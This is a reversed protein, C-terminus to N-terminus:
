DAPVGLVWGELSARRREEESLGHVQCLERLEGARDLRAIETVCASADEADGRKGHNYLTPYVELWVHGRAPLEWGDYPWCFLPIEQERCFARLRALYGIGYLAQLGVAGNGGIQYIPKMKLCKEEVLRREKLDFTEHPFRPNRLQQKFHPGWFPGHDTNLRRMIALNVEAAWERMDGQQNEFMMLLQDWRSWPQGQMIEYFGLPFGYSHDVGGIVRKNQLHADQLLTKLKEFLDDRTHHTLQPKQGDTSLALVIAKEQARKKKAASYDAFAYLDFEPIRKM